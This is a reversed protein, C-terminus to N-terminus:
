VICRSEKIYLEDQSLTLIDNNTILKIEILNKGKKLKKMEIPPISITIYKTPDKFKIEQEIYKNEDFYNYIIVKLKDNSKFEYKKDKELECIYDFILSDGYFIEM